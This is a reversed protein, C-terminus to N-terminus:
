HTRCQRKHYALPRVSCSCRRQFLSGHQVILAIAAQASSILSQFNFSRFIPHLILPTCYCGASLEFSVPILPNGLRFSSPIFASDFSHISSPFFVLSSSLLENLYRGRQNFSADVTIEARCCLGTAHRCNPGMQLDDQM